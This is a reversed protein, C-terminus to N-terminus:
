RCHSLSNEYSFEEIMSAGSIELGPVGARAPVTMALGVVTLPIARLAIILSKYMILSGSSLNNVLMQHQEKLTKYTIKIARLVGYVPMSIAMLFLLFASTEGIYIMMAESSAKRTQAIYKALEKDDTHLHHDLQERMNRMTEEHKSVAFITAIFRPFTMKKAYRIHSNLLNRLAIYVDSDLSIQQAIFHRRADDRIDFLRDRCTDLASNKWARWTWFALLMGIGLLFREM